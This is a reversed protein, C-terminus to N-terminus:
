RSPAAVISRLASIRADMRGLLDDYAEISAQADRLQKEAQNRLVQIDTRGKIVRELSEEHSPFLASMGEAGVGSPEGALM